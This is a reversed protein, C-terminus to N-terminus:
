PKVHIFRIKNNGQTHRFIRPSTLAPLLAQVKDDKAGSDQPSLDLKM